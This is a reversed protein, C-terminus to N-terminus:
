SRLARRATLVKYIAAGAFKKVTFTDSWYKIRLIIFVLAALNMPPRITAIVNM